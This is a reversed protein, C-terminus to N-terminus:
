GLGSLLAVLAERSPPVWRGGLDHVLDRIADLDLTSVHELLRKAERLFRRRESPSADSWFTRLADEPTAGDALVDEHLYGSFVRHLEPFASAASRTM